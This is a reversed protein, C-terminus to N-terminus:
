KPRLENRLSMIPDHAGQDDSTSKDHDFAVWREYKASAFKFTTLISQFQV